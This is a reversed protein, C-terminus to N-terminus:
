AVDGERLCLGTGDIYAFSSLCHKPRDAMWRRPSKAMARLDAPPLHLEYTPRAPFLCQTRRTHALGNPRVRVKTSWVLGLQFPQAAAAAVAADVRVIISNIMSSHQNIRMAYDNWIASAVAM